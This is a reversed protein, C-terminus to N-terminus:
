SQKGHGPEDYTRSVMPSRDHGDTVRASLPQHLPNPATSTAPLGALAIDDRAYATEELEIAKAPVRGAAAKNVQGLRDWLIMAFNAIDVLEKRAEDTTFFEYAVKFEEIEILLLRFLGGIPLERWDRKHDNKRLKREMLEVFNALVPRPQIAGIEVRYGNCYNPDVADWLQLRQLFQERDTVEFEVTVKESTM